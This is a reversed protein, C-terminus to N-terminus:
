IVVVISKEARTIGTYLLKKADEPDRMFDEYLYLVNPWSSGQSSHTTIAYAYEMVDSYKKATSIPTDGGPIEYLHKYDFKVNRFISRTFDPRFDIEMTRGNYSGQHVKTVFGTLGNMLFINKDVCKSWNNKRCIMKEGVHPRDLNSLGLVDSRMFNNINYRLRNTGTIIMDANQFTARNIDEKRIVASKGYIGPDLRHGDIVENALWVIPDNEAQRMIQRLIANPHNLFFPKGFVPPLQNLDGVAVVPIDFSLLDEAIDVPVMSAEDVVILKIRKPLFPKLVFEISYLPKGTKENIIIHGYEDKKKKKEVFYISSHITKAPMGAQVMRACAKGSFSCYLVEDDMLHIRDIFYRLITTKGSGACGSLEFVQGSSSSRWWKELDYLAYIQDNTFDIGM